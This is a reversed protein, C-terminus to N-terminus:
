VKVGLWQTGDCYLIATNGRASLALTTTASGTVVINDTGNATITVANGSSDTKSIVLLLNASGSAAPLPPAIAGSTANCSYFTTAGIASGPTSTLSTVGGSIFGSAILNTIIAAGANISGDANRVVTAMATNATDNVIVGNYLPSKTQSM